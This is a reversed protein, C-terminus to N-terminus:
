SEDSQPTVLTDLKMKEQQYELTKGLSKYLLTIKERIRSSAPELNSAIQYQEMAETYKGVTDFLDAYLERLVAIDPFTQVARQFTLLARGSDARILYIDSLRKYAYLPATQYRACTTLALEIKTITEEGPMRNSEIATRLHHMAYLAAGEPRYPATELLEDLILNRANVIKEERYQQFLSNFKRQTNLYSSAIGTIVILLLVTVYIEPQKWFPLQPADTNEIDAVPEKEANTFLLSLGIWLLPNAFMSAKAYFSAFVAAFIFSACAPFIVDSKEYNRLRDLLFLFICVTLLMSAFVSVSTSITSAPQFVCYRGWENLDASRAQWYWDLQPLPTSSLFPNQFSYLALVALGGGIGLVLCKSKWNWIPTSVLATFLVACIGGVWAPQYGFVLTMCTCVLLIIVLLLNQTWNTKTLFTLCFFVIITLSECVFLLSSQITNTPFIVPEVSYEDIVSGSDALIFQSNIEGPFQLSPYLKEKMEPPAFLFLWIMMGFVFTGLLAQKSDVPRQFYLLAGAIISPALLDRVYADQISLGLWAASAALLFYLALPIRQIREPSLYIQAAAGICLVVLSALRYGPAIGPLSFAFAIYSIVALVVRM